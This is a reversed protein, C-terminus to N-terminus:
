NLNHDLSRRFIRVYAASWPKGSVTRHGAGNLLVAIEKTTIGSSALSEVLRGCKKAHLKRCHTRTTAAQEVGRERVGVAFSRHGTSVAPALIGERRLLAHVTANNWVSGRQTRYGRRNLAAAIANAGLGRQHLKAVLPMIPLYAVHANRTRQVGAAKTGLSQVASSVPARMPKLSKLGALGERKLLRHVTAGNWRGGGTTNHGHRDLEAAIARLTEGRERMERILPVLDAYAERARAISARGAALQGRHREEPTLHRTAKFIHGRARLAVFAAKVRESILRSEHEAMAALIHITLRSAHPNDCAVFDVGSTMLQATVFVSRALRDIRAIVLVASSRRAHAVARVLQPRNSLGDKRGTEVEEYWALVSSDGRSAYATVTARQAAISLGELGQERTSVRLYAVIDRGM